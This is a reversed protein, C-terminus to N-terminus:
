VQLAVTSNAFQLEYKFVDFPTKFELCKRPRNNLLDQVKRVSKKTITKLSMKKPFFQRILGNMNENAGRAKTMTEAV